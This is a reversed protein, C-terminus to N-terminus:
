AASKDFCLIYKAKGHNVDKICHSKALFVEQQNLAEFCRKYIAERNLIIQINLNVRVEVVFNINYPEQLYSISNDYSYEKTWNYDALELKRQSINEAVLRLVDSGTVLGSNGAVFEASVFTMTYTYLAHYNLIFDCRICVFFKTILM